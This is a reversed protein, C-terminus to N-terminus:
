YDSGASTIQLLGVKKKNFSLKAQAIRSKKDNKSRGDNTIRSGLYKFQKVDEINVKNM